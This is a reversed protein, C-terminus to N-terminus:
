PRSRVLAPPHRPPRRQPAEPSGSPPRVEPHVVPVCGKRSPPMGRHRQNRPPVCLRIPIRPFSYRAKVPPLTPLRSHPAPPVSPPTLCCLKPSDAIKLKELCPKRQTARAARSSARYVLSAEFESIERGGSEPTGPNTKHWWQGAQCDTIHAM